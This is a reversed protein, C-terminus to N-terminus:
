KEPQKQWEAGGQPVLEGQSLVQYDYQCGKSDDGAKAHLTIRVEYGTETKDKHALYERQCIQLSEVFPYARLKASLEKSRLFRGLPKDAAFDPRTLVQAVPLRIRTAAAEAVKPADEGAFMIWYGRKKADERLLRTAVDATQKPVMIGYITSGEMACAIGKSELLNAVHTLTIQDNGGIAAAAAWEVDKQSGSAALVFTALLANCLVFLRFM